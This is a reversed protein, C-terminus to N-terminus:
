IFRVEAVAKQSNDARRLWEKYEKAREDLMDEVIESTIVGRSKKVRPDGIKKRVGALLESNIGLEQYVQMCSEFLQPIKSFRKIIKFLEDINLARASDYFDIRDSAFVDGDGKVKRYICRGVIAASLLRKDGQQSWVLGLGTHACHISPRIVRNILDEFCEESFLFQLNNGHKFMVLENMGVDRTRFFHTLGEPTSNCIEIDKPEFYESLSAIQNRRAIRKKRDTSPTEFVVIDLDKLKAYNCQPTLGLNFRFLDRAFGGKVAISDKVGSLRNRICPELDKLRMIRSHVIVPKYDAPPSNESINLPRNIREKM